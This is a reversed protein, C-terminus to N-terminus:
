FARRRGPYASQLTKENRDTGRGPVPFLIIISIIVTATSTSDRHNHKSLLQWAMDKKSLYPPGMSARRWRTRHPFSPSMSCLHFFPLRLFRNGNKLRASRDGVHFPLAFFIGVSCLSGDGTNIQGRHQDLSGRWAIGGLCATHHLCRNTFFDNQHRGITM